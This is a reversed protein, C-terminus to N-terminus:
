NKESKGNILAQETIDETYQARKIKKSQRKKINSIDNKINDQLSQKEKTM